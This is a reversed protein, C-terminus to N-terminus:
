FDINLGLSLTRFIPSSSSQYGYNIPSVGGGDQSEPNFGTYDDATLFLLNQGVVYVRLREIKYKSLFDYPINYGLNVNRLAVYSANQVVSSTTFKPRIFDQDPTAAIIDLDSDFSTFYERDAVNITEAGHSGQFMFSVDVNGLRIENGVSWILFPYPNGLITKDDDNIIGDGNLDKVYVGLTKGGVVGYRNVLFEDPIERDVVFGYFSSIPNGELNIWEAPTSDSVSSVRGNNAGFDTLENENTTATLKTKWGFKDKSINNSVLELEFGSNVVEGVNEIASDFGTTFSVPNSVLLSNSTRKYWEFSGTIKDNLFGFDVGPNIEESGEWQLVNNPINASSVGNVLEGEIVANSTQLLALNSYWATLENGTVFNENGTLGYSFRLKFNSIFNSYKLFKERAVNWGISFAPFNGYKSDTGFVSSGDRRFSGSFLYKNDYAYSARAFFGVKQREIEYSSTSTTTAGSFDKIIENQFGAGLTESFKRNRYHVTIGGVANIDHDGFTNEFTVYNDFIYRTNLTRDVELSAVGPNNLTGGNALAGEWQFNETDEYTFGLSTRFNFSDTFSYKAYVNSFLKTRNLFFERELTKAGPNNQASNSIDLVAGDANTYDDFHRQIAYDGVEVDPYIGSNVFQITEETHYLPLWVAQRTVDTVSAGPVRRKSFSPMFSMGFDIKNSLSFDLKLNASYVKYDDTLIVGEDHLYKLGANFKIKDSGGYANFAHSMITGGDFAIDQWDQDVGIDLKYQSIDSISGTVEEEEAVHDALSFYYADSTRAEKFGLYSNYSFRTQGDEGSKTTIMIVGNSGESGYIAASAADKLVEFSRINNIDINAFFDYDVVVGDIVVAPRSDASISGFGRITITPASGAENETAQVNVGSAQGLLVEDARAHPLQYLNENDIKTVSGTVQSKKATGYGVVIIDEFSNSDEVLYVLLNEEGKFEVEKEAFGISSFVLVDGKKVLLSFNGDYDTDTGKLSNKILVSVGPLTTDDSESKVIGKVFFSDQGYFGACMFMLLLTVYKFNPTM